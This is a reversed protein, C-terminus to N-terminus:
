RLIFSISKELAYVFNRFGTFLTGLVKSVEWFSNMVQVLFKSCRIEEGSLTPIKLRNEELRTAPVRHAKRGRRRTCGESTPLTRSCM